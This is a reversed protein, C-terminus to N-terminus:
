RLLALFVCTAVPTRTLVELSKRAHGPASLCAIAPEAYELDNKGSTMLTPTPSRRSVFAEACSGAFLSLLWKWM